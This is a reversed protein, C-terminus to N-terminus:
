RLVVLKQVQQENSSKDEIILKYFYTGNALLDGDNDRGDWSVQNYGTNANYQIERILRGTVTYIKIKFLNEAAAGEVNFIFSTETRMPNPYNYLDSVSFEGTVIVDYSLTDYNGDSGNKCIVSINNKGSNLEPYFNLTYDNGSFKNDYGAQKVAPNSKGNILYPIYKKNLLISVLTTDESLSLDQIKELNVRVEPNRRINEGNSIEKGDFLVQVDQTISKKSTAISTSAWNNFTYFENSRDRPRINFNIQTSDRFVPMTFSNAYHRSSDPKILSSVTDTLIINSDSVAGSYVRVINGYIYNFGANHYDFSFNVVNNDKGSNIILSNQDLMLESAQSYIVNISNMVPSQMGTLTDIKFKALLNLKPYERSNISSLEVFNSTSIDSRLTTQEGNSKIGIIDFVLSSGSPITQNWNFQKWEKAPGIINSVSGSPKKFIVNMSSVAPSWHDCNTCSISTRCCPDFMESVQSSTAGLYGIFSWSHFYSLLGISDCYISGFERLKSKASASLTTGGAFYAANLLMLYHTSDYANLINILSDSSAATNMKLNKFELISGTLKRVKVLNLGTNQGGDIYINKDGISFYSAEEANSGLSRVFLNSSVENLKINGSNFNTNVFDSPSFQESRHKFIETNADANTYADTELPDRKINEAVTIGNNFIFRQIRSWGTTDNNIISSTRCYYLTNNILVPLLAKFKTSVGSSVIRSFTRLAPSTFIRSTDMEIIVRVTNQTYNLGPNLGILEISDKTQISNDVPNIQLFAYENYPINFTISNDSEDEAPYWNGQDLNVTMTYVGPTDVKFSYLVTDLFRFSRYVTDKVLYNQSNKKLQFRIKCSDANLGYNKPFISLTVPEDLVISETSLTYDNNRIVFEPNRPLKIKVAPDGLLKYCNITHRVAFSLSDYGLIDEAKKILDGMRRNSDLKISQLILTGLDNGTNAFSWGTTAIFGIAGKGNLYMFKEGFGRFEAKSSEGTFCTLSLILPLKNGNNLVNPDTMGVEWDHSGAHGKFNVFLTGRNIENKISDAYNFTIHGSTDSRYIKHAEGSIPAPLVYTGAEFNSRQQYSQQESYTSGGTIFTFAKWWSDPPENEYAMIKDVMTQAESVTYAPLRGIPVRDGYFFSGRNMNSFYGDSPPNGYVPVLNKVYTSTPVNQKPDLSGRGLLCIYKLKPLQWTDYVHLAFNKVALPDENGYNFIDYIDEIEAKVSRFNDLSQRHARLQEAQSQFLSNYILLYDAGNSSAALDPVQRSRIRAPKKRISDNVIEFKANSRGTFKLTDGSATFNSVRINNRVDYINLTNLTNFSSVRFLKSTTDTGSIDASLKNNVFRFLRPYSLEFFDFFVNGAFGSASNYKVSITNVSFNSLLSSSFNVTTDFRNFDNRVMTSIVTGNVSIEITHDNTITNSTNQPYAFVKISANQPITYLNPLSFTDSITQANSLFSWYWGEGSFKETNLYRYDSASVNEGQSYLNDKEFHLSDKFFVSPYSSTTTFSGATYRIGNVGGWEIWYSNTDSYQNYYENLAYVSDNNSNYVNVTGGRRREGYFDLYDNDNFVGDAEGSFYIPIQLGKNLVKVTRPDIVAPNIGANTFDSKNIRYMGDSVIHLKLYTKGPTIWNYNQASASISYSLSLLIFFLLKRAIGQFISVPSNM